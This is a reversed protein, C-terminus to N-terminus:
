KVIPLILSSPYDSNHWLKVKATKADKATEFSVDGGSNYNKQYYPSNLAGVVLRLRSGKMLKRSIFHFTKFNYLYIEDKEVFEEQELSNRHRARMLDSTLYICKGDPRIEYLIAEFDTDPVDMSIYANLGVQGTFVVDAAFPESHYVLKDPAFAEKEERWAFDILQEQIKESAGITDIPNYTYSDPKEKKPKQFNLYGSNFVDNVKGGQSHIYYIHEENHLGNLQSAYKWENSGMEYSAVKDKLFEPKSSDKLTWNFWELHLKNMDLVSNEGFKMNQHEKKPRRTGGHNWPGIIFYCNNRATGTGYKMFSNYYNMTGPQDDDFHGTITLIPINFKAYEEPKPLVNRYYEDFKPHSIWNQFNKDIGMGSIEDLKAYPIHNIFLEAYVANWYKHDIFANRNLANGLTFTLWQTNYTYLINNLMPFDIGPGVTATPIITKLAPPMEKLILWQVMGVYSGGFMGIEGNSWPQGSIWKCIDYGDKGEFEFPIFEGESNGRGRMDGAVVVYGNEAFFMADKYVGDTTYPTFVFLTPLSEKLDAPKYIDVNLNIGDRAPVKQHFLIDVKKITGAFAPFTLVLSLIIILLFLKRM